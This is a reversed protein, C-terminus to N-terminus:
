HTALVPPAHVEALTGTWEDVIGSVVNGLHPDRYAEELGSPRAPCTTPM